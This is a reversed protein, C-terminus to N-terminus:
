NTNRKCCFPKVRRGAGRAGNAVGGSRQGAPNYIAPLNKIAITECAPLRLTRKSAHLQSDRFTQGM